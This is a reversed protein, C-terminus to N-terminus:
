GADDLLAFELDEICDAFFSFLQSKLVDIGEAPEYVVEGSADRKRARVLIEASM